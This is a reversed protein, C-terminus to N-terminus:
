GRSVLPAPSAGQPAWRPESPWIERSFLAERQVALRLLLLFDRRAVLAAGLNATHANLVQADIFLCGINRLHEVLYAFAVKSGDSVEHFMSEGAFMAGVQVGYLGGVLAEGQWVEVSHAYGLRHFAGYTAIFGETIWQGEHCHAEACARIVRDFASDFTIRLDHRRMIKGIKRLPRVRDLLFIARPDPCYWRVPNESWPFLGRSYAELLMECSMSGTVAVLGTSDATHPDPFFLRRGLSV